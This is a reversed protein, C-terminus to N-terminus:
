YYSTFRTTTNIPFAETSNGDKESYPLPMKKSITKLVLRFETDLQEGTERCVLCNTLSDIQIEIEM